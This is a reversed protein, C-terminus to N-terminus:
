CETEEITINPMLITRKELNERTTDTLVILEGQKAIFM